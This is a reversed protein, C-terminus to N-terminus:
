RNYFRDAFKQNMYQYTSQYNELCNNIINQIQESYLNMNAMNDIYWQNTQRIDFYEIDNKQFINNLETIYYIRSYRIDIHDLIPDIAVMTNNQVVNLLANLYNILASCNRELNKDYGTYDISIIISQLHRSFSELKQLAEILTM